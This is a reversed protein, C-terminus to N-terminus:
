KKMLQPKRSPVKRTWGKRGEMRSLTHLSLSLEVAGAVRSISSIIIGLRYPMCDMQQGNMRLPTQHRVIDTQKRPSEM